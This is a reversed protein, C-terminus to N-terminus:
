HKGEDDSRGLLTLGEIDAEVAPMDDGIIPPGVVAEDLQKEEAKAEEVSNTEFPSVDEEVPALEFPASKVDPTSIQHSSITDNTEPREDLFQFDETQIPLGM